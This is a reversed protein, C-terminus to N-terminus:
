VSPTVRGDHGIAVRLNRDFHAHWSIGCSPGHTARLTGANLIFYRAQKWVERGAGCRCSARECRLYKTKSCTTRRMFRCGDPRNPPSSCGPDACRNGQRMRLIETSSRLAFRRCAGRSGTCAILKAYQQGSKGGQLTPESARM